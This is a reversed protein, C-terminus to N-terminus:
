VLQERARALGRRAEDVGRAEQGGARDLERQRRELARAHRPDDDAVRARSGLEEVGRTTSWSELHAARGPREVEVERPRALEHELRLAAAIRARRREREDPEEVRL